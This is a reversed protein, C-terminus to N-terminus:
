RGLVRWCFGQWTKEWPPYGCTRLRIYETGLKSYRKTKGVHIPQNRLTCLCHSRFQASLTTRIRRARLRKALFFHPFDNL